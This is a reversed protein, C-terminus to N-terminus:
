GYDKADVADVCVTIQNRGAAKSAYLARDAQKILVAADIMACCESCSVGLSITVALGSAPCGDVTMPSDAVTQRFREAALEADARNCPYLVVLFEEGGYRGIYDGSRAQTSLRRALHRLVDDGAAHGLSDNVRKFHDIDILIISLPQQTRRALALKSSLHEIIMGRNFLGTLSDHTARELLVQAAKKRLLIDAVRAAFQRGLFRIFKIDLDNFPLQLASVSLLGICGGDTVFPMVVIEKSTLTLLHDPPVDQISELPLLSRQPLLQHWHHADWADLCEVRDVRARGRFGDIVLFDTSAPVVLRWSSANACYKWQSAIRNSIKEIDDVLQIEDLLNVLAEYRVLQHVKIDTWRAVDTM